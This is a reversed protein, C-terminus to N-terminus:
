KVALSSSNREVIHASDKSKLDLGGSTFINKALIVDMAAKVEAETVDEKVNNLTISSKKGEENLFTMSLSKAM